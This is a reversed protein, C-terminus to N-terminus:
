FLSHLSFANSDTQFSGETIDSPLKTKNRSIDLYQATDIIQSIGQEARRDQEQYIREEQGGPTEAGGARWRVGDRDGVM